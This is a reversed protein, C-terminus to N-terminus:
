YLASMGVEDTSIRIADEVPLVFIKGDGSTGTWALRKIESIVQDLDEERLVIELKIRDSFSVDHAKDEQKLRSVQQRGFGKVDSVSMGEVGCDILAKKIDELKHVPFFCEIKKLM